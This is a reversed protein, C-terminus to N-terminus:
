LIRKCEGGKFIKEEEENAPVLQNVIAPGTNTANRAAMLFLARTLKQWENQYKQELWVM